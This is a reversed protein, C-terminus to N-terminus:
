RRLTLKGVMDMHCCINFISSKWSVPILQSNMLNVSICLDTPLETQGLGWRYKCCSWLVSYPPFICFVMIQPLIGIEVSPYFWLFTTSKKRYSEKRIAMYWKSLNWYYCPTGLKKSCNDWEKVIKNQPFNRIMNLDAFVLSGRGRVDEKKTRSETTAVWFFEAQEEM